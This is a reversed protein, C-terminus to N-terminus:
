RGAALAQRVTLVDAFLDGRKKVRAITEDPAFFLRGGDKKKWAATVEQWTLPISTFPEDRKARLSYVSVMTKYYVNQSWDIFVKGPRLSKAMKAVILGPEDAALKEAMARAFAGTVAYTTPTNLPIYVQLGKSGSAKIFSALGLADFVKRMRLAVAACEVITAPEGPDLDFVVFSPREIRPAQALFIHMEISSLNAAWLLSRRDNILVFDIMPGGHSKDKREIPFTRVWDPTYRPADKLWVAPAHIGHPFLKLTLPRNTLHPLIVPAIADYYRIADLKTYGVAPFLVREPHTVAVGAPLGRKTSTQVKQKAM